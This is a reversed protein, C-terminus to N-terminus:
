EFEKCKIQNVSLGPYKGKFGPLGQYGNVGPFGKPGSRGLEGPISDGPMGPLGDEGQIGPLGDM